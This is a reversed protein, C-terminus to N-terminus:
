FSITMNRDEGGRNITLEIHQASAIKQIVEFGRQPSDMPTHDVAVIIDGNRLGLQQFVDGNRGPSVRFGVFQRGRSVPAFRIYEVIREPNAVLEERLHNLNPPPILQESREAPLESEARPKSRTVRQEQRVNASEDNLTLIQRTGDSLVLAVTQSTIQEVTARGSIREGIALIADEEGREQIVARALQPDSSSVIGLLTLVLPRSTEKRVPPAEVEQEKPPASRYDGFLARQALLQIEQESIEQEQKAGVEKPLTRISDAPQTMLLWFLAALLWANLLLLLFSVALAVRRGGSGEFFNIIATKNIRKM